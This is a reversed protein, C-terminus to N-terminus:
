RVNRKYFWSMHDLRADTLLPTSSNTPGATTIPIPSRGAHPSPHSFGFQTNISPTCPPIKKKKSHKKQKQKKPFVPSHFPEEPLDFVNESIDQPCCLVAIQSFFVPWFLAFFLFVCCLYSRLILGGQVAM